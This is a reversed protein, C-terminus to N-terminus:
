TLFVWLLLSDGSLSRHLRGSSSPVRSVRNEGRATAPLHSGVAIMAGRESRRKTLALFTYCAWHGRLTAEEDVDLMLEEDHEERHQEGQERTNSGSDTDDDELTVRHAALTKASRVAACM